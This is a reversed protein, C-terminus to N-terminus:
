MRSRWAQQRQERRQRLEDVARVGERQVALENPRRPTQAVRPCPPLRDLEHPAIKLPVSPNDFRHTVARMASAGLLRQVDGSAAPFTM